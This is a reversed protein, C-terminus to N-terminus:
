KQFKVLFLDIILDINIYYTRPNTYVWFWFTGPILKKVKICSKRFSLLFTVKTGTM